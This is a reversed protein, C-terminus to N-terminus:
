KTPRKYDHSGQTMMATSFYLEGEEERRGRLNKKRAILQLWERASKERSLSSYIYLWM